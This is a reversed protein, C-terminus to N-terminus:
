HFPRGHDDVFPHERVFGVMKNLTTKAVKVLGEGVQATTVALRATEIMTASEDENDDWSPLFLRNLRGAAGLDGITDLLRAVNAPSTDDHTVLPRSLVDVVLHRAGEDDLIDPVGFSRNILRQWGDANM